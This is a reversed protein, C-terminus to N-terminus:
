GNMPLNSIQIYKFSKLILLSSKFFLLTLKFNVARPHEFTPTATPM